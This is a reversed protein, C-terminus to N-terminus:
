AKNLWTKFHTDAFSNRIKPEVKYKKRIFEKFKNDLEKGTVKIYRVYNTM